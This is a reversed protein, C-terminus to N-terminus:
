GPVNSPKDPSKRGQLRGAIAKEILRIRRPKVRVRWDTCGECDFKIFKESCRSLLRQAITKDGAGLEEATLNTTLFTGPRDFEHRREILQQIALIREPDGKPHIDDIFLIRATAAASLRM